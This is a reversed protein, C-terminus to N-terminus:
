RACFWDAWARDPTFACIPWPTDSPSDASPPPAAPSSPHSLDPPNPPKPENPGPANPAAPSPWADVDAAVPTPTDIPLSVAGGATTPSSGPECTGTCSADAAVGSEAPSDPSGMSGGIMGGGIEGAPLPQRLRLCCFYSSIAIPASSLPFTIRGVGMPPILSGARCSLQQRPAAPHRAPLWPREPNRPGDPGHAPAKGDPAAVPPKCSCGLTGFPSPDASAPTAIGAAAALAIAAGFLIKTIM